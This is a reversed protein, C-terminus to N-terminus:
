FIPKKLTVTSKNLFSLFFFFCPFNFDIKIDEHLFPRETRNQVETKFNGSSPFSMLVNIISTNKSLSVKFLSWVIENIVQQLKPLVHHLFFLMYILKHVFDMFAM